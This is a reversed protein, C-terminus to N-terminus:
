TVYVGTVMGRLGTGPSIVGPPGGGREGVMFKWAIPRVSRLTELCQNGLSCRLIKQPMNEYYWDGEDNKGSAMKLVFADGFVRDRAWKNPHLGMGLTQTYMIHYEGTMMELDAYERPVAYLRQFARHNWAEGSGWFPDVVNPQLRLSAHTFTLHPEETKEALPVDLFKDTGKVYSHAHLGPHNELEELSWTAKEYLSDRSDYLKGLDIQADDVMPNFFKCSHRNIDRMDDANSHRLLNSDYLSYHYNSTAKVLQLTILCPLTGDAPIRIATITPLAPEDAEPLAAQDEKPPFVDNSSGESGYSPLSPVSKSSSAM